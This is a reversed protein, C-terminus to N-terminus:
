LLSPLSRENAVAQSGTCFMVDCVRGGRHSQYAVSVKYKIYNKFFPIKTILNFLTQHRVFEGLPYVETPLNPRVHVVGKQSITFHEPRM